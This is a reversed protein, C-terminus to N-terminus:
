IPVDSDDDNDTGFVYHTDKDSWVIKFHNYAIIGLSSHHPLVLYERDNLEAPQAERYFQQLFGLKIFDDFRAFAVRPVCKSAKISFMRQADASWKSVAQEVENFKNTIQIRYEASDNPAPVAVTKWSEDMVENTAKPSLGIIRVRIGKECVKRLSELVYFSLFQTRGTIIDICKNTSAISDFFSNTFFGKELSIDGAYKGIGDQFENMASRAGKLTFLRGYLERIFAKSDTDNTLNELKNIARSLDNELGDINLLKQTFDKTRKQVESVRKVKALTVITIILGVLGIIGSIISIVFNIGEMDIGWNKMIYQGMLHEM